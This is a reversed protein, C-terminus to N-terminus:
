ICIIDFLPLKSGPVYVSKATEGRIKCSLDAFIQLAQERWVRQRGDWAFSQVKTEKKKPFYEADRWAM